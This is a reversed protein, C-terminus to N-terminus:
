KRKTHKLLEDIALIIRSVDHYWCCSSHILNTNNKDYIIETNRKAQQYAKESRDFRILQLKTLTRRFMSFDINTMPHPGRREKILMEALVDAAMNFDNRRNLTNSIRSGILAMVLPICIGLLWLDTQTLVIGFVQM